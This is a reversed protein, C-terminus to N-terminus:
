INIIGYKINEILLKGAALVRDTLFDKDAQPVEFSIINLNKYYWGDILYPLEGDKARAIWQYAYDNEDTALQRISPLESKYPAYIILEAIESNTLISNSVLQWYYKEGDKHNKRVWNIAAMGTLPTTMYLPEVLTCFSKLKQPSKVDSVVNQKTADPSGAWYKITRHEITDHSCLRYELPLLEFVKKECLKGWTLPRADVENTISRGLKREMNCEDVYTYFPKGFSGKEKGNTTLEVIESSTINGIRSTNLLISEM